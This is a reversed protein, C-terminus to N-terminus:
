QAAGQFICSLTAAEVTFSSAVSVRAAADV